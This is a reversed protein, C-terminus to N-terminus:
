CWNSFLWWGIAGNLDEDPIDHAKLFQRIAADWDCHNDGTNVEFKRPSGRWALLKSETVGIVYMPCDCHCHSVICVPEPEPFAHALEALDSNAEDTSYDYEKIREDTDSDEKVPVGYVLIADTSVGM